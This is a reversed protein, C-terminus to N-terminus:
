NMIGSADLIEIEIFGSETAQIVASAKTDVITPYIISKSDLDFENRIIGLVESTGDFDVQTLRYYTIGDSPNKDMYKYVLERESNGAGGMEILLEYNEGDISKELIFFDNNIEMSTTWSIAVKDTLNFSELSLLEVPLAECGDLPDQVGDDAVAIGFMGTSLGLSTEEGDVLM